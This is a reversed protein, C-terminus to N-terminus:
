VTRITKRDRMKPLSSLPWRRTNGSYDNDLGAGQCVICSFNYAFRQVVLVLTTNVIAACVRVIRRASLIYGFQDCM